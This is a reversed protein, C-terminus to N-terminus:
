TSPTTSNEKDDLNELYITNFWGAFQNEWHDESSEESIFGENKMYEYFELLTIIERKVYQKLTIKDNVLTTM